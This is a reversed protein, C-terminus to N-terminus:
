AAKADDDDAVRAIEGEALLDLMVSSIKPDFQTGAGKRLESIAYDLTQASRYARSSSIADFTDAVAIIRAIFPIAEGEIGDPYGRGDFREHHHRINPLVHELQTIPELVKCGKVPHTKITDFEEDTLRGPKNLISRAIAIKGVDHLLASWSLDQLEDGEIGLREGILMSYRYVRESHGRTYEDKADIAAVLGKVTNFLMEQLEHYLERTTAAKTVEESLCELLRVEGTEYPNDPNSSFMGVFGSVIERIRIPIVIYFIQGNDGDVTGTHRVPALSGAEKAVPLLDEFISNFIANSNAVAVVPDDEELSIGPCGLHCEMEPVFLSLWREELFDASETLLENAAETFTVDPKVTRNFSYLLNIEDYSQALQETLRDLDQEMSYLSSIQGALSTVLSCLVPKASHAVLCGVQEGNVQLPAWIQEKNPNTIDTTVSASKGTEFIVKGNTNWIQFNVGLCATLDRLLDSCGRSAFEHFSDNIQSSM